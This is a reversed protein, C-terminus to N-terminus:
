GPEELMGSCAVFTQFNPVTDSRDPHLTNSNLTPVSAFTQKQGLFIEAFSAFARSFFLPLAAIDIRASDQWCSPFPTAPLIM